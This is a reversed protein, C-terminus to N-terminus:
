LEHQVCVGIITLAVFSRSAALDVTNPPRCWYHDHCIPKANSNFLHEYVSHQPQRYTHRNDDRCCLRDYRKLVTHRCRLLISILRGAFESSHSLSSKKAFLRNM